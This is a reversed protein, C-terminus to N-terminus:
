RIEVRFYRLCMLCWRIGDISILDIPADHLWLLLESKQTV